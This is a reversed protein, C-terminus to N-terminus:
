YINTEWRPPPTPPNNLFYKYHILYLSNNHKSFQFFLKQVKFNTIFLSKLINVIQQQKEKNMPNTGLLNAVIKEAQKNLKTEEHDWWCWYSISDGDQETEVIDYMEGLYEFEKSHKWRLKNHTDELSFKLLVLDEKDIGAIIQHKVIKKIQKKQHRIVTMTTVIPAVLCLIL